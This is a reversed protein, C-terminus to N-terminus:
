FGIIFLDADSGAENKGGIGDGATCLSAWFHVRSSKAVRGYVLLGSFTRSLAPDPLISLRASKSFMM